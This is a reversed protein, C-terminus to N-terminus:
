ALSIEQWQSWEGNSVRARYKSGPATTFTTELVWGFGPQYREVQVEFRLPPPPIVPVPPLNPWNPDIVLSSDFSGAFVNQVAVIRKDKAALAIAQADTLGPAAIWLDDSFSAPVTLYDSRDCYITPREATCEKCAAVANGMTWAGPEVDFVTAEFQPSTQGGQDIRVFQANPFLQVEKSTWRIDPSGTLYIAVMSPKLPVLVTANSRTADYMRRM